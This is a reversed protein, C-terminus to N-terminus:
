QGIAKKFSAADKASSFTHVGGNPDTVSLNDSNDSQSSKEAIRDTINKLESKFADESLNTSLSTVASTLAQFERDTVRGLGHLLNLNPLIVDNKVQNLKADFNAAATGPIPTSKLGFLSSIGKAGVAGSFGNDNNVMDNLEQLSQSTTQLIDNTSGGAQSLGQTVLNKLAPNGTLDSLKAKGSNINSVWADVTPNSGPTYTTGTLGTGTKDAESANFERQKETFDRDSNSQAQTDKLAQTKATQAATAADYASKGAAIARDYAAGAVQESRADASEEVAMNAAQYSNRRDIVGASQEAGSKLGGSADLADQYQQRSSLNFKDQQSQIDALKQDAATLATGANTIASSTLSNLYIQYPDTSNGSTSNTTSSNNPTGGTANIGSGSNVPNNGTNSSNASSPLTASVVQGNVEKLLGNSNAVTQARNKAMQAPDTAVSNVYNQGAPTSLASSKAPAASQGNNAPVSVPNTGSPNAPASFPTQISSANPAYKNQFSSFANTNRAM